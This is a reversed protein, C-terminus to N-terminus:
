CQSVHCIVLDEGDRHVLRGVSGAAGHGTHAQLIPSPGATLWDGVTRPEEQRECCQIGFDSTCSLCIHLILNNCREPFRNYTLGRVQRLRNMADTLAPDTLDRETLETV